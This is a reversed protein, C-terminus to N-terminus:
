NKLVSQFVLIQFLNLLKFLENNSFINKDDIIKKYFDSTSKRPFNSLVTYLEKHKETLLDTFHIRDILKFKYNAFDQIISDKIIYEDKWDNMTANYLVSITSEDKKFISYNMNESLNFNLNNGSSNFLKELRNGDLCSIIIKGNSNILKSLKKLIYDKTNGCYSYHIAFQWDILDFKENKVTKEYNKNLISMNYTDLTFVNSSGRKYKKLNIYRRMTEDLGHQDPDTGVMKLIEIYYYKNLDGGQGIDIVLVKNKKKYKNTIPSGTITIAQTKAINSILNLILESRKANKDKVFYTLKEKNLLRDNNLIKQETTIIPKNIYNKLTEITFNSYKDHFKKSELIIKVNNGKYYYRYFNNTKELRPILAKDVFSYEGIFINPILVNSSTFPDTYELLLLDLNFKIHGTKYYVDVSNFEIFDKDYLYGMFKIMYGDNTSYFSSKSIDLKFVIDITNNMKYKYDTYNLYQNIDMLIVGDSNKKLFTEYHVIESLLKQLSDFPGTYKKKKFYIECDTISNDILKNYLDISDLRSLKNDNINDFYYPYVCLKNDIIILEGEGYFKNDNLINCSLLYVNDYMNVYCIKNIVYFIVKRGDYKKTLVYNEIILKDFQDFSIFNTFINVFKLNEKILYLNQLKTYSFVIKFCDVLNDYLKGTVSEITNTKDIKYLLPNIIEWEINYETYKYVADISNFYNSLLKKNDASGLVHKIKFEIKINQIQMSSSMVYYLKTKSEYINKLEITYPQETAYKMIINRKDKINILIQEDLTEKIEWSTDIQNYLYNNNIEFNEYKFNKRKRYKKPVNVIKRVFEIYINNKVFQKYINLNSLLKLDPFTYILEIEHNINKNQDNILKNNIINISYKSFKNIISTITELNDLNM